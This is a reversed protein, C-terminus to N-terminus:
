KDIIHIYDVTTIHNIMILDNKMQTINYSKNKINIEASRHPPYISGDVVLEERSRRM